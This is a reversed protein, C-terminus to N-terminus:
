RSRPPIGRPRLPMNESPVPAGSLIWARITAIDNAALAHGTPPMAGAQDDSLTVVTLFRSSEPKGPVILKGPGVLAGLARTDTLAPMTPLRQEGHCHVCTSELVPLVNKFSGGKVTPAPNPGTTTCGAANWLIVAAFPILAAAKRSTKM